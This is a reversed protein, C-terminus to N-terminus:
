NLQLISDIDGQAAKQILEMNEAVFAYNDEIDMDLGLAEGYDNVAESYGQM